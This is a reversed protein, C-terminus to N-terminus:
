TISPICDLTKHVSLLCEVLQAIYMRPTESAVKIGLHFSTYLPNKLCHGAPVRYLHRNCLLKRHHAAHGEVDVM